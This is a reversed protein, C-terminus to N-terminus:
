GIGEKKKIGPCDSPPVPGGGGELGVEGSKGEGVRKDPATKTGLRRQNGTVEKKSRQASKQIELL